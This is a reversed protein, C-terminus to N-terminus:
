EIKYYNSPTVTLKGLVYATTKFVGGGEYGTELTLVNGSTGALNFGNVYNNPGERAAKINGKVVAYSKGECEPHGPAFIWGIEVNKILVQKMSEVELGFPVVAEGLEVQCDEYYPGFTYCGTKGPVGDVDLETIQGTTGPTLTAKGHVPCHIGSLYNAIEISGDLEITAPPKIEEGNHKWRAASALAPAALAAVAIVGVALMSLTKIRRM